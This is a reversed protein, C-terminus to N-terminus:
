GGDAESEQFAWHPHTRKFHQWEDVRFILDGAKGSYPGFVACHVHGGITRYRCRMTGATHDTPPEVPKM